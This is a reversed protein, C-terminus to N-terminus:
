LPLLEIVDQNENGIMMIFSNDGNSFVPWVVQKKDKNLFAQMLFNIKTGYRLQAAKSTMSCNSIQVLYLDITIQM